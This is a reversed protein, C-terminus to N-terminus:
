GHASGDLEAILRPRFPAPRSAEFTQYVQELPFLRRGLKRPHNGPKWRSRPM